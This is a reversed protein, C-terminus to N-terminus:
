PSPTFTRLYAVLAVADGHKFRFQRMPPRARSGDPLLGTEFFKIADEDKAFMPLGAIKQSPVANAPATPPLPVGQLNQGHCGICFGIGEIIYKGQAVDAASYTGQAATPTHSVVTLGVILAVALSGLTGLHLNRM